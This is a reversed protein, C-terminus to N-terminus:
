TELVWRIMNPYPLINFEKAKKEDCALGKWQLGPLGIYTGKAFASLITESEGKYGAPHFVIAPDIGLHLAAAYSWALAMIEGGRNADNDPLWGSTAERVDRPMTALHGAEHLIDGPYLLKDPDIIIKGNELELGPLFPSDTAPRRIVDIGISILFDTITDIVPLNM